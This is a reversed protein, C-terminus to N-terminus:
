LALTRRGARRAFNDLANTLGPVSWVRQGRIKQEVKLIGASEFKGLIKYASSSPIGKAQVMQATFAPETTCLETLLRLNQTRRTATNLISERLQDIDHMLVQVNTMARHAADVFETIIPELNGDRYADLAEFYEQTRTLLGSSLPITFNVTTGRARLIASVLARGTRGNGDAFPHITEFQAHAIAAQVLAPIERRTMFGVLDSMLSAITSHHPPVFLATVPSDGGIWNAETRFMGANIDSDSMLAEHMALITQEQLSNSLRLAAELATTNRAIQTANIRSHDGLRALAIRRANATLQEIQSSAASESRLLVSEFPAGYHYQADFRTLDHSAEQVVRMLRPSLRVEHAAILPVVAEQYSGRNAKRRRNSWFPDLVADRPPWTRTKFKVDPWHRVTM